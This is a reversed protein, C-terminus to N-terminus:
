ELLTMFEGYTTRFNERFIAENELLEWYLSAKRERLHKVGLM